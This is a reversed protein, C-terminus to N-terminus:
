LKRFEYSIGEFTVTVLCYNSSKKFDEINIYLVNGIENIFREHSHSMFMIDCKNKLISVIRSREKIDTTHQIDFAGSIFLNSHTFVFLRGTSKNVEEELWDLQQKGYFSNASDLIILKTSGANIRYRTSGIYKKWVTWNGFYVDHNGIVPYCPVGLSDAIEIFREIDREAGNQTIDGAIVVFRVSPELVDALNEFGRAYGDEIHTDALVIFSYNDGLSLTTWGRQELFKLNDKEKLREELFSSSFLGSFDNSCTNLFCLSCLFLLLFKVM